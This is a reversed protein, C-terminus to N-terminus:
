PKKQRSNPKPQESEGSLEAIIQRAKARTRTLHMSVSGPTIGLMEGIEERNFGYIANLVLCAANTPDLRRMVEELIDRDAVQKEMEGTDNTTLEPRDPVVDYGYQPRELPEFGIRKHKRLYDIAINSAIRYLWPRLASEHLEPPKPGSINRYAREFVDQELNEAADLSGVMQTIFRSIEVHYRVFVAEFDQARVLPDDALPREIAQGTSPAPKAAHEVSDEDQPVGHPLEPQIDDPPMTQDYHAM